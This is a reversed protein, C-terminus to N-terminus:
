FNFRGEADVYQWDDMRVGYESMLKLMDMSIKVLKAVKM